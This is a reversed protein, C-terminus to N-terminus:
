KMNSCKDVNVYETTDADIVQACELISFTLRIAKSMTMGQMLNANSYEDPKIIQAAYYAAIEATDYESGEHIDNFLMSATIEADYCDKITDAFIEKIKTGLNSIIMKICDLRNMYKEPDLGNWDTHELIEADTRNSGYMKGLMLAFQKIKILETSKYTFTDDTNIAGYYTAVLAYHADLTAKDVIKSKVAQRALAGVGRGTILTERLRNNMMYVDALSVNCEKFNGLLEVEFEGTLGINNEHSKDVKTRNKTKVSGLHRTEAYLDKLGICKELFDRADPYNNLAAVTDVGTSAKSNFDSKGKLEELLSKETGDRVVPNIKYQKAYVPILGNIRVIVQKYADVTDYDSDDICDNAVEEPLLNMSDMVIRIESPLEKMLDNIEKGTMNQVISGDTNALTSLLTLPTFDIIKKTKKLYKGDM